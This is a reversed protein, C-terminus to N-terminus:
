PNENPLRTCIVHFYPRKVSITDDPAPNWIPVRAMENGENAFRVAFGFNEEPHEVWQSFLYTVNLALSDGSVSTPLGYYQPDYSANAPDEFWTTDEMRATAVSSIKEGLYLPNESDIFVIFEALNIYAGFQPFLPLSDVTLEAPSFRFLTRYTITRGIYLYSEDLAASDLAVYVDNTAYVKVTDSEGEIWVSTDATDQEFPVFVLEMQPKLVSDQPPNESSYFQRMFDPEGSYDFLLGMNPSLSDAYIWGTVTAIDIDFSHTHTDLDAPLSFQAIATQEWDILSDWTVSSEHWDASPLIDDINHVSVDLSNSPLNATDAFVEGSTVSIEASNLSFSDPLVLFDNFKMLFRARVGKYEGVYLNLSQGTNIQTGYYASAPTQFDSPYLTTEFVEGELSPDMIGKGVKGDHEACGGLLLLSLAISLPANKM